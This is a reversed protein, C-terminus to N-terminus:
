TGLACQFFQYGPTSYLNGKKEATPLNAINDTKWLTINNRTTHTYYYYGDKYYCWPDAGAPLLPNSFTQQAQVGMNWLVLLFIIASKKIM